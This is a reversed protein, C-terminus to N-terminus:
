VGVAFDVVLEGLALLPRQASFHSELHSLAVTPEVHACASGSGVLIGNAILVGVTHSNEMHGLRLLGLPFIGLGYLVILFKKGQLRFEAKGLVTHAAAAIRQLQALIGGSVGHPICLEEIRATGVKARLEKVAVEVM